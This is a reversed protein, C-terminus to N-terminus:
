KTVSRQIDSKQGPSKRVTSDDTSINVKALKGQSARRPEKTFEQIHEQLFNPLGAAGPFIGGKELNKRKLSLPESQTGFSEM